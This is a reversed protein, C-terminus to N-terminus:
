ASMFEGRYHMRSARVSAGHYAPLGNGGPDHRAMLDCRSQVPVRANGSASQPHLRRVKKGQAEIKSRVEVSGDVHADRGAGIAHHLCRGSEVLHLPMRRFWRFVKREEIDPDDPWVARRDRAIRPCCKAPPKWIVSLRTRRFCCSKEDRHFIRRAYARCPPRIHSTSPLGSNSFKRM